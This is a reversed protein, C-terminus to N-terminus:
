GRTGAAQGPQKVRLCEGAAEGAEDLREAGGAFAHDRDVALREPAREVIGGAAVRQGHDGGEGGRGAEHDALPAETGSVAVALDQGGPRQEGAKVEAAPQDGGVCNVALVFGGLQDQRSATVIQQAELGVPRGQVLVYRGVEGIGLGQGAERGGDGGVGVM